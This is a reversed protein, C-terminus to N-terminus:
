GLSNTKQTYRMKLVFDAAKIEVHYLCPSHVIPPQSCAIEQLINFVGLAPLSMLPVCVEDQDELSNILFVMTSGTEAILRWFNDITHPMPHETALMFRNKDIGPIRIANIYQSAEIELGAKHQLYYRNSDAPLVAQNRNLPLFVPLNSTSYTLPSPLAKAMAYQDRSSLVCEDLFKMLHDASMVMKNGFLIEDLIELSLNFQAENEVLFARSMRLRALVEISSLHGKLSLM